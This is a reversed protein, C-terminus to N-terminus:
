RRSCGAWPLSVVSPIRICGGCSPAACGRSREGPPARGVFATCRRTCPSASASSIPAPTPRSAGSSSPPWTPRRGWCPVPGPRTHPLDLGREAGGRERAAGRGRGRVPGARLGHAPRRGRSRDHRKPAQLRSPRDRRRPGGGSRSGGRRLRRPDAAPHAEGGAALRRRDRWRRAGDRHLGPRRRHRRRPRRRREPPSLRALARAERLLRARREASDAGSEHVIKLALRRDLDPHHAAYVEGMGGRGIAGLIQYRGVSAGPALQGIFPRGERGPARSGDAIDAAAWTTLDICAPCSALHTETLTRAPVPLTGDLFALVTLEGLCPAGSPLSSASPPLSTPGSVPLRAGRCPHRAARRLPHSDARSVGDGVGSLLM